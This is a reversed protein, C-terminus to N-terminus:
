GSIARAIAGGHAAIHAPHWASQSVTSSEIAHEWLTPPPISGKRSRRRRRKMSQSLQKPSHVARPHSTPSPTGDTTAHPEVEFEEPICVFGVGTYPSQDANTHHPKTTTTSPATTSTSTCAAIIAEFFSKGSPRPSDPRGQHHTPRGAEAHHASLMKNVAVLSKRDTKQRPISCRTHYATHAQGTNCPRSARENTSPPHPPAHGKHVAHQEGTTTPKDARACLRSSHPFLLFASNEARRSLSLSLSLSLAPTHQTHTYTHAPRPLRPYCANTPQLNM